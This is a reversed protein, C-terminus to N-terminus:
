FLFIPKLYIYCDYFQLFPSLFFIYKSKANLLFLKLENIIKINNRLKKLNKFAMEEGKLGNMM